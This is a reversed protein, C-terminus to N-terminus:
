RSVAEKSGRPPTGSGHSQARPDPIVEDVSGTRTVKGGALAVARTALGRAESRQHTVLLTPIQREEVLARTETTLEQRLERDLASFAEDLLLVAPDSAFARALAVRQAEGGSFTSPRRDALHSVRMRELWHLALARRAARSLSRDAGYAVNHAATMHPFLALSQFVLAVGRQHIPRTVKRARDFWVEGGCTIHGADPTVIGAIAALTTSKGSGSPGFLVTVGPPVTFRVDLEFQGEAAPRVRISLDLGPEAPM